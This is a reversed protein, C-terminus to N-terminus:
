EKQEISQRKLKGQCLFMSLINSLQLSFLTRYMDKLCKFIFVHIPYQTLGLSYKQPNKYLFKVEAIKFVLTCMSVSLQSNNLHTVPLFLKRQSSCMRRRCPKGLSSLVLVWMHHQLHKQSYHGLLVAALLPVAM